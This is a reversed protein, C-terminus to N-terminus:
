EEGVTKLVAPFPLIGPAMAPEFYETHLARAKLAENPELGIFIIAPGSIDQQDILGSLRNITTTFVRETELTGDQVIVVPTDPDIGAQTLNHEIHPATKVGMYIACAAEPRALAKWDHEAKGDGTMGTIFTLARNQGRVTLPLKVAAACGAAATIGPVIEVDIGTAQLIELEEGGRGFIFPDGGKLRVVAHGLSAERVLIRNIDTQSTSVGGPTKGVCIRRADRRAYDLIDPGILRDYVIVDAQQLYRQAKLTLLDPDGPGAGILAVHGTDPEQPAAKLLHNVASDFKQQDQNLLHRAAAGHFFKEWFQRRANAAPLANHVRDRLLAAQRALAGLRSSLMTDIKAKIQRALVPAAGETGIAVIVPDRDVISPTIFDCLEPRDVVNVPIKHEAALAAIRTAHEVPIDGVFILTSNEITGALTRWADRDARELDLKHWEIAADQALRALEQNLQAALVTIRASTKGLLRIKQAATEDGGIVLIRATDLKLFVPYYKM